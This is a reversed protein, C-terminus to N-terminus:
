RRLSELVMRLADGDVAGAIRVQGQALEVEIYGGFGASPRTGAKGVQVPLLCPEAPAATELRGARYLKRWTSLQNPRVGFRAAVKVITTGPALSAEVMRRREEISRRQKTKKPIMVAPSPSQPMASNSSEM